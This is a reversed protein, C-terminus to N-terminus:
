ESSYARYKKNKYCGINATIGQSRKIYNYTYCCNFYMKSQFEYVGESTKVGDGKGQEMAKRENFVIKQPKHKSMNIGAQIKSEFPYLINM